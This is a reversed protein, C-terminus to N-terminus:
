NILENKVSITFITQPRLRFQSPALSNLYPATVSVPDYSSISDTKTDFGFGPGFSLKPREKTCMCTCMYM